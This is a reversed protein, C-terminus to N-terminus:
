VAGVRVNLVDGNQCSLMNIHKLHNDSYVSVIELLQVFKGSNETDCMLPM